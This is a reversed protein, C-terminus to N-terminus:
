VAKVRCAKFRVGDVRRTRFGLAREFGRPGLSGM